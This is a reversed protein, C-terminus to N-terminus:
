VGVILSFDRRSIYTTDKNRKRLELSTIKEEGFRGFRNQPGCLRRNLPCQGGKTPTFRGAHSISREGGSPNLTLPSIGKSGRYAKM